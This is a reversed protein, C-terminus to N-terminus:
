PRKEPGTEVPLGRQLWDPLGAQYVNFRTYGLM